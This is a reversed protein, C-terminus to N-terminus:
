KYGFNLIGRISDFNMSGSLALEVELPTLIPKGYVESDDIAIRPCATSVFVEIDNFPAVVDESFNRVSFLYCRRGNSELLKKVKFALDIHCQGHKVGIFVGFVKADRARIINNWRISVIKKLLKDLNRVEFRFPDLVYTPKGTSLAIGLGHFDGGSIVLFGDVKDVICLAGCIECGLVQGEFQLKGCKCGLFVPIGFGELIEKVEILNPIHQVTSLLGVPKNFGWLDVFKLILDRLSTKFFVPVYIIPIEFDDIFRSHGFHIILDVGLRRADDIAIDCGGFCPDMSIIFEANVNKSLKDVVNLAFTKLGDPFQLLIRNANRVRADLALAELNFDYM